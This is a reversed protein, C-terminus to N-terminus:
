KLCIAIIAVALSLLAICNAIFSYRTSSKCSEKLTKVQEELVALQRANSLDSQYRAEREREERQKQNVLDLILHKEIDGYGGGNAKHYDEFYKKAMELDIKLHESLDVANWLERVTGNRSKEIKM